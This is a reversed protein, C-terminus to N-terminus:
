QTFNGETSERGFHVLCECGFPVVGERGFLLPHCTDSRPRYHVVPERGFHVLSERSFHVVPERRFHVLCERGLHVLSERSFPVLCIAFPEAKLYEESLTKVGKELLIGHGVPSFIKHIDSGDKDLYPLACRVSVDTADQADQADM